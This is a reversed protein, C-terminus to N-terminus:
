EIGLIGTQQILERTLPNLISHIKNYLDDIGKRSANEQEFINKEPIGMQLLTQKFNRHDDKVAPINEM